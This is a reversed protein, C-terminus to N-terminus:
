RRPWRPSGWRRGCGRRRDEVRQDQVAAEVTLGAATTEGCQGLTVPDGKRRVVRRGIRERRQPQQVDKRGTVVEEAVDGHGVQLVELPDPERLLGLGGILRTKTTAVSGVRGVGM